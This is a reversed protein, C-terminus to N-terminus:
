LIVQLPLYIPDKRIQESSCLIMKIVLKMADFIDLNKRLLATSKSLEEKQKLGPMMNEAKVVANRLTQILAALKGEALRFDQLLATLSLTQCKAYLWEPDTFLEMLLTEFKESHILHYSLCNLM